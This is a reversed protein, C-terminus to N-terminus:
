LTIEWDLLFTDLFEKLKTNSTALMIHRELHKQAKRLAIPETVGREVMVDELFYERALDELWKESLEPDKTYATGPANYYLRIRETYTSGPHKSKTEYPRLEKNLEEVGDGLRDVADWYAKHTDLMKQYLAQSRKWKGSLKLEKLARAKAIELCESIAEEYEDYKLQLEAKRERTWFEKESKTLAM